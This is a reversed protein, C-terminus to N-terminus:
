VGFDEQIQSEERGMLQLLIGAMVIGIGMLGAFTGGHKLSRLSEDLGPGAPISYFLVLGSIIMIIGFIIIAIGIKV